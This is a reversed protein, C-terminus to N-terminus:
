LAFYFAFRLVVTVFLYYGEEVIAKKCYGKVLEPHCALNRFQVLQWALSTLANM